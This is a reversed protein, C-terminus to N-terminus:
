GKVSLASGNERHNIFAELLLCENGDLYCQAYMSKTIVNASLETMEVGPCEVEYLCADLIPNHNSSVMLM